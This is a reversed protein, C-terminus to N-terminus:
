KLFTEFEESKFQPGNDSVVTVNVEYAAFLKDLIEVTVTKTSLNTAKVKVWKSYADMAILLMTGAFPGAYDISIREWPGKPYEWHQERFKPRVRAHKACDECTKSM